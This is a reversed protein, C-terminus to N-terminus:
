CCSRLAWDVKLGDMLWCSVSLHDLQPRAASWLLTACSKQCPLSSHWFIEHSAAPRIAWAPRRFARAHSHSWRYRSVASIALGAAHCSAFKRHVRVPSPRSAHLLCKLAPSLHRLAKKYDTQSTGRTEKLTANPATRHNGKHAQRSASPADLSSLIRHLLKFLRTLRGHEETQRLLAVAVLLLSSRVVTLGASSQTQRCQM